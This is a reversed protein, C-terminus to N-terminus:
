VAPGRDDSGTGPAGSRRRWWTASRTTTVSWRSISSGCAEVAELRQHRCAEIALRTKGMGGVGVVTVLRYGGSLEILQAVEAGARRVLGTDGSPEGDGSDSSRLSPVMTPAREPQATGHGRQTARQTPRTPRGEALSVGDRVITRELDRLETSPELGLQEGLVCRVRQFARLAEAKRGDRYLAIMLQAWRQERLPELAAASELDAILAADGGVELRAENLDEDMTRFLEELRVCASRAPGDVIDPAPAGRWLGRATSLAEIADDAAGDVLARGGAVVLQEFERADVRDAVLRYADGAREISWDPSRM